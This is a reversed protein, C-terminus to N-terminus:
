LCKFRWKNPCIVCIKLRSQKPLIIIIYM